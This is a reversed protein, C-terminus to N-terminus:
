CEKMRRSFALLAAKEDLSLNELGEIGEGLKELKKKIRELKQSESSDLPKNEIDKIEELINRMDTKLYTDSLDASPDLVMDLYIDLYNIRDKILSKPISHIPEAKGGRIEYVKTITKPGKPIITCILTGDECFYELLRLYKRPDKWFRGVYSFKPSNTRRVFVRVSEM